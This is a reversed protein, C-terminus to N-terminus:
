QRMLQPPNIVANPCPPLPIYTVGYIVSFKHRDYEFCPIKICPLAPHHLAFNVPSIFALHPPILPPEFRLQSWKTAFRFTERSLGWLNGPVLWCTHPQMPTALNILATDEVCSAESEHSCSEIENALEDLLVVAWWVQFFTGIYSQHSLVVVACNKYLKKQERSFM